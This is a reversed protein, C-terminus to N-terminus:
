PETTEDRHDSARLDILGAELVPIRRMRWMLVAIRDVLESEIGPQPHYEDELEGRRIKM